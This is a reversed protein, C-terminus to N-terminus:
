DFLTLDQPETPAFKFPVFFIWCGIIKKSNIASRDCLSHLKCFNPAVSWVYSKDDATKLSESMGVIANNGM